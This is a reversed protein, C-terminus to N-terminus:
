NYGMGWLSGDSMLFLSHFEGAAIATVNTAVIKEPTIHADWTGDGLQGDENDGMGWLSGDSKIFLSHYSGATIATVGNAVIKEPQNTGVSNFYGDGLQGYENCGMAWLSGDSKLLLSHYEGAAIATVNTAMYANKGPLHADTFTGDGLEGEYNNGMGWLSSDSM